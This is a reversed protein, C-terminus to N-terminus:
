NWRMRKRWECVSLFPSFLHFFLVCVLSLITHVYPFLRVHAAFVGTVLALWIKVVKFIKILKKKDQKIKREPPVACSYKTERPNCDEYISQILLPLANRKQQQQALKRTIYLWTYYMYNICSEMWPIIQPIIETTMASTVFLRGESICWWLRTIKVLAWIVLADVHQCVMSSANVVDFSHDEPVFLPKHEEDNASWKM